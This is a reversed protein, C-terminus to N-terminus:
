RRGKTRPSREEQEALMALQDLSRTWMSELWTRLPALSDLRARYIRQRGEKRVSVLRAEALVRLHQSIAGFTVDDLARHIQGAALERRSLMHLIERRRPEGLASLVAQM